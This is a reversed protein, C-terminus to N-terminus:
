FRFSLRGWFFRGPPEYRPYYNPGGTDEAIPPNRGTLNHVGLTLTTNWNSFTYSANINQYTVSSVHNHGPVQGPVGKSDLTIDPNSCPASPRCPEVYDGTFWVSYEASWNGYDWDIYANAKRKVYATSGYLFGALGAEHATAFGTSTSPNPKTINYDRVFNANLRASFDGFPTSPLKYSLSVDFGDAFETDGSFPSRTIHTITNGSRSILNCNRGFTYCGKLVNEAPVNLSSQTIEIHYYDVSGSFGELWSPSYVLGATRSISREPPL